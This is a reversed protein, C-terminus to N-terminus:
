RTRSSGEVVFAHVHSYFFLMSWTWSENYTPDLGTNLHVVTRHYEGSKWPLSFATFFANLKPPSAFGSFHGGFIITGGNRVFAVAADKQRSYEPETLAADTAFIIPRTPGALLADAEETIEIEQIEAKSKLVQLVREFQEDFFPQKFLSLLILKPKSASM